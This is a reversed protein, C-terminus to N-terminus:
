VRTQIFDLILPILGPVFERPLTSYEEIGGTVAAQFLHNAGELMEVASGQAGSLAGAMAPANLEDNVQMDLSGYVALIPCPCEEACSAPDLLLFERFWPSGLLAMSQAKMALIYDEVSGAEAVSDPLAEYDSRAQMELLSDLSAAGEEGALVADMIARQMAVNGTVTEEPEGELRTFSEVQDLLIEYGPVAPGALCIVFDARSGPASAARLAITSGESHGLFGTRTEDIRPDDELRALMASADEVLISDSALPDGAPLGGFGRDDCRLVAMGNRTLSDALVGFVAFGLVTEDRDQIGSGTIMVVGPFPGEGPPATLTGRLTTGNVALEIDESEYPLEADLAGPRRLVFSGTASGQTFAGCISDPAAVGRFSALGLGSPLDFAVSDGEISVGTLALGFAGQVPIDITGSLSDANGTFDVAIEMELGQVSLLGEWSGAIEAPSAPRSGGCSVTALLVLIEFASIIGTNKM